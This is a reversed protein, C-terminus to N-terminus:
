RNTLFVVYGRFWSNKALYAPAEWDGGQVLGIRFLLALRGIRSLYAAYEPITRRGQYTQIM